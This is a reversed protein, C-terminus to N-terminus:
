NQKIIKQTKIVTGNKEKLVCFYVAPTLKTTNISVSSNTIKQHLMLKGLADYVELQLNNRAVLKESIEINIWNSFPNPYTLFNNENLPLSTSNVLQGNEDVKLVYLEIVNPNNEYDHRFGYMLCGGDETALLGTMSYHADNGYYREWNKNLLSDYQVLVFATPITDFSSPPQIFSTGGCYIKDKSIYDISKYYAPYDITDGKRGFTDMKIEEFQYNSIGIGIQRNDSNMFEFYKGSILFTSDTLPALDGQQFLTFPSPSVVQLVNLDTDVVRLNPTNLIYFDPNEELIIIDNLLSYFPFDRKLFLLNGSKSLKAVFPIVPLGSNSDRISGACFITDQYATCQLLTLPNSGIYILTDEMLTLNQDIRSLWFFCSDVDTNWTAGIGLYGFPAEFLNYLALSQDTKSISSFNIAYGQQDLEWLEVMQGGIGNSVYVSIIYNNSQNEASTVCVQSDNNASSFEFGINQAFTLTLLSVSLLITSVIKKM